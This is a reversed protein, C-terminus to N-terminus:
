QLNAFAAQERRHAGGLRLRSNRGGAHGATVLNQVARAPDSMMRNLQQGFRQHLTDPAFQLTLNNLNSQKYTSATLQKRTRAAQAEVTVGVRSGTTVRTAESSVAAGVAEAVKVAVGVWVGVAVRVAVAVWVGVAVAVTGGM